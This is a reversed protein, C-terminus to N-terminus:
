LLSLAYLIFFVAVSGILLFILFAAGLKRWRRGGHDEDPPGYTIGRDPSEIQATASPVYLSQPRHAHTTGCRGLHREYHKESIFKGCKPCTPL